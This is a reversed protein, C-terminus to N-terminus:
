FLWLSGLVLLIAAVTMAQYAREEASVPQMMAGVSVSASLSPPSSINQM